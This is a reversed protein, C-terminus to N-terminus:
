GLMPGYPFHLGGQKERAPCPLHVGCLLPEQTVKSFVVGESSGEERQFPLGLLGLGQHSDKSLHNGATVCQLGPQFCGIHGRGLGMLWLGLGCGWDVM